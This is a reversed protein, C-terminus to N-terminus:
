KDRRVSVLGLDRGQDGVPRGAKRRDGTARLGEDASRRMSGAAIRHSMSGHGMRVVVVIVIMVVMIVLSVTMPAVRVVVARVLVVMPVVMPVIVTVAMASM